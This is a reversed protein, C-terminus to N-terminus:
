LFLMSTRKSRSVTNLCGPQSVHSVSPSLTMERRLTSAAAWMAYRSAAAGELSRSRLGAAPLDRDFSAFPQPHPWHIAVITDDRIHELHLHNMRKRWIKSLLAVSRKLSETERHEKGDRLQQVEGTSPSMAIESAVRITGLHVIEAVLEPPWLFPSAM